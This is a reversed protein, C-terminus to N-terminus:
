HTDKGSRPPGPLKELARLSNGAFGISSELEGRAREANALFERLVKILEGIPEWRHFAYRHPDSCFRVQKGALPTGCWECDERADGTGTRVAGIAM